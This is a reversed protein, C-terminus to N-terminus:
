KLFTVGEALKKTYNSDLPEKVKGKALLRNYNAVFDDSLVVGRVNWDLDFNYLVSGNYETDGPVEEAYVTITKEEKSILFQNVMNYDTLSVAKMYNTARFLIYRVASNKQLSDPVYLETSPSFGNVSDPEFVATFASSFANNIGGLIIEDYGDNDVDFLVAATIGGSNYFEQKIKGSNFDLEFIKSPAFNTGAIVFLRKEKKSKVVFYDTIQWRSHKWNPTNLASFSGCGYKWKINGSPDFCYITDSAFIGRYSYNGTILLENIGDNNLDDLLLGRVNSQNKPLDTRFNEIGPVAKKWLVDGMENYVTLVNEKIVALTPNIYKKDPKLMMFFVAILLGAFGFAGAFRLPYIRILDEVKKVLPEERASVIEYNGNYVKVTLKNESLLKSGGVPNNQDLIKKATQSDGVEDENINKQIFSYYDKVKEFNESCMPCSSIHKEIKEREELELQSSDLFYLELKSDSIHLSM